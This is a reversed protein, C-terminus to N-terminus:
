EVEEVAEVPASGGCQHKYLCEEPAKDARMHLFRPHRLAGKKTREMYEVEIVQNLYTSQNATFDHRMADTMGSCQGTEILYYDIGDKYQHATHAKKIGLSQIEGETLYEAYRVAGILGLYKGEKADTFGVIVVDATDQKKWKYWTNAPKAGERYKANINKWMTGEGGRAIIEHHFDEKNNITYETLRFRAKNFYDDQDVLLMKKHDNTGILQLENFLNSLAIRRMKWDLSALDVAGLQLIDFTKFYIMSTDRGDKAEIIGSVDESRLGPAMAEVDIITGIYKDPMMISSIHPFAYTKELPRTPDNKGSSRSFFRIGGPTFHVTLRVGDEKEEAIWEKSDLIEDKKKGEKLTVAGMPWVIREGFVTANSLEVAQKGASAVEVYQKRLKANMQADMKKRAETESTGEYIPNKSLHVNRRGYFADVYFNEKDQTLFFLYVKDSGFSQNHLDVRQIIKLGRPELGYNGVQSYPAIWTGTDPKILIDRTMTTM